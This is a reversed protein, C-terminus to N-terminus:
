PGATSPNPASCNKCIGMVKCSSQLDSYGLAEIAQELEEPITFPSEQVAHCNRCTLSLTPESSRNLMYLAKGEEDTMRKLIGAKTLADVNRYVTALDPESGFGLHHIEKVSLARPSQCSLLDILSIRFRTGKLGAQRLRLQAHERLGTSPPAHETQMRERRQRSSNFLALLKCYLTSWFAIENRYAATVNAAPAYPTPM